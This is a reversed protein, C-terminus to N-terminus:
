LATANRLMTLLWHSPQLAKVAHPHGQPLPIQDGPGLTQSEGDVRVELSGELLLIQAPFPATHASIEQGADMAFVLVKTSGPLDLLPRSTTAEPTIPMQLHLDTIVSM